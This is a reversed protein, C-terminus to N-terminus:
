FMILDIAFERSDKKISEGFIKLEFKNEYFRVNEYIIFDKTYIEFMEKNKYEYIVSIADGNLKRLIEDHYEKNILYSVYKSKKNISISEYLKGNIYLRM